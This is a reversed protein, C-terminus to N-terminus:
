KVDTVPRFRNVIRHVALMRCSGLRTQANSCVAMPPGTICALAAGNQVAGDRAQQYRRAMVNVWLARDNKATLAASASLMDVSM